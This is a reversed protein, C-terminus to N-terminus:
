RARHFSPLRRLAERLDGVAAEGDGARLGYAAAAFPLAATSDEMGSARLFAAAQGPAQAAMEAAKALLAAEAESVTPENPTPAATQRSAAEGALAAAWGALGLYLVIGSM